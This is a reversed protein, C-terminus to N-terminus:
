VAMTSAAAHRGIEIMSERLDAAIDASAHVAPSFPEFSFPGAYGGRQLAEIQGINDILDDPGVLVRLPDRYSDLSAATDEVGSIHVLGTRAPFLETEGSVAHHFTDHLVQFVAGGDVVDIADVATRKLRLACEAFGLPEILGILGHASLIPMLAVLADLLDSERRSKDRTDDTSNTPCLVIAKAGCEAAYACLAEAEVAREDSWSEFKQLANISLLTVGAAHAAEAVASAPTGDQLAVGPLDNRIEVDRIGIERALAFLGAVDLAPAAIHNLAFHLSM